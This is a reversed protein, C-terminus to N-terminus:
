FNLLGFKQNEWLGIWFFSRFKLKVDDLYVFVKFKYMLEFIILVYYM